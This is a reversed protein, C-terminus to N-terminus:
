PSTETARRATWRLLLSNTAVSVSSLAMAVGAIVPSLLGAAALPIALTNYGFAWVLNQGIKRRTARSLRIAAPVLAPDDRLLALGATELAVDTGGGMAIGVDAAALAPADNVGDGVMAVTEGQRQLDRIADAKGDPRVDALVRDIGIRGAIADAARRHDGTLMVTGIGMERLTGIAPVASERVPDGLAIVGLLRPRDGLAGVWVVSQGHAQATDAATDGGSVAVGHRELLDRRGIVLDQGGVRARVGQGPVSDLREPASLAVGADRAANVIAAALPHSSGQQAGGALRLLADRDGDIPTVAQVTPTGATLTGTKDFVVTTVKTSRELAAADKILVGKRAALGTGVMIATPTALGLACPCAIVLVAVANLVAIDTPAGGLAWGIGTVLAVAIVAPVFVSAVRDVLRQVPPKSAQAAQVLDIIRALTARGGVATARVRILGDGNIAGAVVSDGVAKTVPVSEGTVLSEDVASSGAIVEGDVPLREGPRVVLVDGHRVQGAPVTVTEGDREVRATEPRLSMLARVAAGAGRTARDELIRGLLVFTLVAAASEYYLGGGAGWALWGGDLTLTHYLSVGFAATTGLAVLTDMNGTLRKLAPWSARYFRAGAVVQVPLALALQTLPPLHGPIGALPFAMQVVLPLTLVASLAFVAWERRAARADDAGSEATDGGTGDSVPWADYGAGRVAETLIGTDVSASVGVRATKDALNVRATRVGPVRGLAKEVTAVCSACTMGAVALTVTDAAPEASPPEVAAGTTQGAHGECCGGTRPADAHRTVAHSPANEAADQTM